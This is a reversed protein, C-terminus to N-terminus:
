SLMECIERIRLFHIGHVFDCNRITKDYPGKRQGLECYDSEELSCELNVNRNYHRKPYEAEDAYSCRKRRRDNPKRVARRYCM